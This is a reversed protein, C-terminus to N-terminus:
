PRDPLGARSSHLPAGPKGLVQAALAHGAECCQTWDGGAVYTALFAGAFADGAGTTDKVDAVPPVPVILPERGPIHVTTPDAGAKRILVTEALAAPREDLSLVDWEQENALFITPAIDALIQFYHDLGLKLLMASSSADISVAIGRASAERAIRHVEDATSGSEFSYSTLHLCTIGDLWTPDVNTIHLCAGRSPIMTREGFKDILVVIVGTPADVVQLRADVGNAVLERALIEGLFDDGVAGIFRTPTLTAAAAAVNAASGGRSAYVEGFTDSGAQLPEGLWIVTDQVVDGIVALM